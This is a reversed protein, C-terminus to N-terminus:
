RGFKERGYASLVKFGLENGVVETLKFLFFSFFVKLINKIGM